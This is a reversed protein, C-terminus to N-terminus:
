IELNLQMNQRSHLEATREQDLRTVQAREEQTLWVSNVHNYFEAQDDSVTTRVTSERDYQLLREKLQWSEDDVGFIPKVEDV